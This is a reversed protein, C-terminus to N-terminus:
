QWKKEHMTKKHCTLDNKQTNLSGAIRPVWLDSERTWIVSTTVVLIMENETYPIGIFRSKVCNSPPPWVWLQCWWSSCTTKRTCYKKPSSLIKTTWIHILKGFRNLPEFLTSTTECLVHQCTEDLLKTYIAYKPFYLDVNQPVEISPDFQFYM